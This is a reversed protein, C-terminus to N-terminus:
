RNGLLKRHKFHAIVISILLFFLYHQCVALAGAISYVAQSIGMAMVNAAAASTALSSFAGITGQAVGVWGLVFLWVGGVALLKTTLPFQRIRTTACQIVSAVGLPLALVAWFIIGAWVLLGVPGGSRIVHFVGGGQPASAAMPEAAEQAFALIPLVVLLGTVILLAHKKM